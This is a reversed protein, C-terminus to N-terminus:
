RKRGKREVLEEDWTTVFKECGCHPCKKPPKPKNDLVFRGCKVCSHEMCAM